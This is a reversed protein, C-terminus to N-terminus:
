LGLDHLRGYNSSWCKTGLVILSYDTIILIKRKRIKRLVLTPLNENTQGNCLVHDSRQFRVYENTPM